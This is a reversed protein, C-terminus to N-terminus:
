LITMKQRPILQLRVMKTRYMPILLYTELFFDFFINAGRPHSCKQIKPYFKVFDDNEAQTNVSIPGNKNQVYTNALLNRVFYGLFM